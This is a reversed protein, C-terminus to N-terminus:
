KQPEQPGAGSAFTSAGEKPTSPLAQVTGYARLRELLMAAMKPDEKQFEGIVKIRAREQMANLYSVVQRIARDQLPKDEMPKDGFPMAVEAKVAAPLSSTDGNLIQQLLSKAEAAKLGELVGVAKKFQPNVAGTEAAALAERNEKELKERTVSYLRRAEALSESLDAVDRELRKMKQREADNLDAKVGLQQEATLPAKERKADEAAKADEVKKKAVEDTKAQEDQAQTSTFLERVKQVREKSLRDSGKLWGVVGCFAVLNAIAIVCLATWIVKM